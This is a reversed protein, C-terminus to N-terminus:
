ADINFAQITKQKPGLKKNLDLNVAQTQAFFRHFDFCTLSIEGWIRESWVTQPTPWRNESTKKKKHEVYKTQTRIGM